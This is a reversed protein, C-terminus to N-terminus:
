RSWDDGRSNDRSVSFRTGSEHVKRKSRVVSGSLANLYVAVPENVLTLSTFFTRSMEIAAAKAPQAWGGAGLAAGTGTVVALALVPLGDDLATARSLAARASLVLVREGALTESLAVTLSESTVLRAASTKPSLLEADDPRRTSELAIFSPGVHSM